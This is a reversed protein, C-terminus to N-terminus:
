EVVRWEIRTCKAGSRLVIEVEHVALKRQYKAEMQQREHEIDEPTVYPTLWMSAWKLLEVKESVPM